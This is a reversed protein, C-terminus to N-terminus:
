SVVIEVAGLTANDDNPIFAEYKTFIEPIFISKEVGCIV